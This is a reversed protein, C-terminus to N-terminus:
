PRTGNNALACGAGSTEIGAPGNTVVTNGVISSPCLASIGAGQNLFLTNATATGLQLAIGHGGNLSSVNGTAVGATAALIIGDGSNQLATSDRISTAVIGFSGNQTAASEIVTGAVYMGGGANSDVTVKEVFSVSGNLLIGMLGMGRVAGNRIRVGRPSPAHDGNAQVGIGTGPAPCTTTTGTACVAPGVISFGNLDLTVFDATIQIATTNLDPVTLNGSLRYIGSQTITVPFGALDGPTVSGAAARNQDIYVVGDALSPRGTLPLRSQDMSATSDASYLGSPIAALACWCLMRNSRFPSIIM